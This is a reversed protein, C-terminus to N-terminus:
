KAGELALLKNELRHIREAAQILAGHHLMSLKTMNVTARPKGNEMHWSGKGIIGTQELMHRRQTKADDEHLLLEREMDAVLSLDDHTAYTTWEVDAHGSGEADFIFRTTQNNQIVLLNGDAGVATRGTGDRIATDLSIVGAGSTSKTTTVTGDLIGWVYIATHTSGAAKLAVIRLGGMTDTKRVYGYTDTEAITTMGHAVDSSKFALIEDDAGGQNITLGTTMNANETDGIFVSGGSAIQVKTAGGIDIRVPLSERQFIGFTGAGTIGIDTGTTGYNPTGNQFTQYTSNDGARYVTLRYETGAPIATGGLASKGTVLLDAAITGISTLSSATVGSALTSGTLSGAAAAAPAAWKVGTTEGSDATLVHADTGVGLMQPNGTGDGILVHGKTSMDVAGIASAGNGILVGNATLTSVGTGGYGVGVDTGQWVGTAITGLYTLAGGSNSAAHAHTANAFGTSSITPTTLTLGALTASWAPIGSALHLVTNDAGKALRSLQSTSSAYMIDGAAQSSFVHAGVAEWEAQTLETGVSGHKLENAM